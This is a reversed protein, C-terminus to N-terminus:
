MIALARGRPREWWLPASEPQELVPTAVPTPPAVPPASDALTASADLPSAAVATPPGPNAPDLPTGDTRYIPLLSQDGNLIILDRFMWGVVGNARILLWDGAETIGFLDVAVENEVASIVISDVSPAGRLRAPEVLLPSM